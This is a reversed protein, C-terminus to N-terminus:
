RAVRPKRAIFWSEFYRFSVLAALWAGLATLVFNLAYSHLGVRNTLREVVGLTLMHMLYIGYSVRGISIFPALKLLKAASHDERVVCSGVAAALLLHTILAPLRLWIAVIASLGTLWPMWSRGLIAATREFSDRHHLLHALVVGYCIAPQISGLIVLPLPASRSNGIVVHALESLVAAALAIRTPTLWRNKTYKELSPWVLYFQEETALSWAFYFIVRGDLEVFWNSTYTAFYGLNSLFARGAPDDLETAIVLATYVGLIAYYLPFIRLSRRIYFAKLDIRGTKDRERLLLTTILFGSIAFFLAVGDAGVRALPLTDGRAAHHWIVALISLARLGDLSGFLSTARFTDFAPAQAGARAGETRLVSTM